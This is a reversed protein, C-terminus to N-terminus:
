TIPFLFAINLDDLLTLGLNNKFSFSEYVYATM